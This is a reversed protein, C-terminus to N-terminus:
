DMLSSVNRQNRLTILSEQLSLDVQTMPREYAYLLLMDTLFQLSMKVAVFLRCRSNHYETTRNDGRRLALSQCATIITYTM